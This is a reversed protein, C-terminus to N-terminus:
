DQIYRIEWFLWCLIHWFFCIKLYVDKDEIAMNKHQTRFGVSSIFNEVDKLFRLCSKCFLLGQPCVRPTRGSRSLPPSPGSAWAEGSMHFIWKTLFWIPENWLCLTVGSKSDGARWCFSIDREPITLHYFRSVTVNFRWTSSSACAEMFAFAPSMPQSLRLKANRWYCNMGAQNNQVSDLFSWKKALHVSYIRFWSFAFPFIASTFSRPGFCETLRCTSRVFGSGRGRSQHSCVNGCSKNAKSPFCM